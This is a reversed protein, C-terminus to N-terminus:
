QSRDLTGLRNIAIKALEQAVGVVAAEPSTEALRLYVEALYESIAAINESRPAPPSAAAVQAHCKAELVELKAAAERSAAALTRASM